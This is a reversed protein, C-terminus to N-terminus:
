LNVKMRAIMLNLDTIFIDWLSSEGGSIIEILIQHHGKPQGFGGSLEHVQHVQNEHFFQVLKDHDENIVGQDKRFTLLFMFLMKANHKLSQTIM